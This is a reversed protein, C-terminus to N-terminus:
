TRWAPEDNGMRDLLAQGEAPSRGAGTLLDVALQGPAAHHAVDRSRDFVVEPAPAALLVNAGSNVERLSLLSLVGRTMTDGKDLDHLHESVARLNAAVSAAAGGAEESRTDGVFPDVRRTAKM